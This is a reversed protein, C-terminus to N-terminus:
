LLIKQYLAYNPSELVQEEVNVALLNPDVTADHYILELQQLKNEDPLPIKLLMTLRSYMRYPLSNDLKAADYL